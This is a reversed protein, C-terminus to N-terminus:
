LHGRLSFIAGFHTYSALLNRSECALIKCIQLPQCFDGCKKSPSLKFLFASCLYILALLSLTAQWTWRHILYLLLFPCLFVACTGLAELCGVTRGYHSSPMVAFLRCRCQGVLYGQGLWQSFFFFLHLGSQPFKVLFATMLSLWLFAKKTSGIYRFFTMAFFVAITSLLYMCALQCRSINFNNLWVETFAGLCMVNTPVTLLYVIFISFLEPTKKM